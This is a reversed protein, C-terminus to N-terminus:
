CGRDCVCQGLTHAHQHEHRRAAMPARVVRGSAVLPEAGEPFPLDPRMLWQTVLGPRVRELALGLQLVYRAIGREGHDRSQFGVLDYVVAPGDTTDPM